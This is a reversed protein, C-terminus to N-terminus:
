KDKLSDQYKDPYHWRPSILRFGKGFVVLKGATRFGMFEFPVHTVIDGKNRISHFNIFREKLEKPPLFLVRPGAFAYTDPNRGHFTFYEHALVAIGGGHSYGLIILKKDKSLKRIENAIVDEVAKWVKVFGGHARWIFSQDRYPKSPFTFNFIWDLLGQSHQFILFIESDTEEIRYQTDLGYTSWHDQLHKNFYELLM